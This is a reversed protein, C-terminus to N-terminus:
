RTPKALLIARSWRIHPREAPIFGIEEADAVSQDFEAATVHEKPEALLLPAGAKLLQYLERLCRTQDPVEHLAAFALAFDLSDDRGELRLSDPACAHTEIRDSVGARAARRTLVALMKPQLDVCIVKGGSGVMQAMPLSFFGMASGFDLVTMNPRIYPTLITSPNQLLKRLRSAMFYGVWVPCVQEAM